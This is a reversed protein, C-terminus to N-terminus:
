MRAAVVKSCCYKFKFPFFVDKVGDGTMVRRNDGKGCPCPDNRGIKGTKYKIPQPALRPGTLAREVHRREIEAIQM